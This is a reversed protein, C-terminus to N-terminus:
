RNPKRPVGVCRTWEEPQQDALANPTSNHKNKNYQLDDLYEVQMREPVIAEIEVTYGGEIYAFEGVTSIYLRNGDKRYACANKKRIDKKSAKKITNSVSYDGYHKDLLLTIQDNQSNTRTLTCKSPLYVTEIGSLDIETKEYVTISVNNCIRDIFKGGISHCGLMSFSLIVLVCTRFIYKM